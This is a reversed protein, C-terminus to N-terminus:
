PCSENEDDNDVGTSVGIQCPNIYFTEPPPVLHGKKTSRSDSAFAPWFGVPKAV